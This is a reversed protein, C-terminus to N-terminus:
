KYIFTGSVHIADPDSSSRTLRQGTGWDFGAEVIGDVNEVRESNFLVLSTM